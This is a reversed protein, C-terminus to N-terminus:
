ELKQYVRDCVEDVAKNSGACILVNSGTFEDVMQWIFNTKGTGPPGYVIWSRKKLSNEINNFIQSAQIRGNYM